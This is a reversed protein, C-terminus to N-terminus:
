GRGRKARTPSSDTKETTLSRLRERAGQFRTQFQPQETTVVRRANLCEDIESKRFRLSAGVKLYPLQGFHVRKYVMGPSSQLYEAVHEVTWLVEQVAAAGM